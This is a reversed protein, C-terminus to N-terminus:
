PPPPPFFSCPSLLLRSRHRTRLLARSASLFFHYGLGSSRVFCFAFTLGCVFVCPFSAFIIFPTCFHPCVHFVSPSSLAWPLLPSFVYFFWSVFPLPFTRVFLLTRLFISTNFSLHYLVLPSLHHRQFLFLPPFVVRPVFSLLSGGSFAPFSLRRFPLCGDRAFFVSGDFSPSLPRCILCDSVLPALFFAFVVAFWIFLNGHRPPPFIIVLPLFLSFGSRLSGAL